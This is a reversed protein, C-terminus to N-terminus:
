RPNKTTCFPSPLTQLELLQRPPFLLLSLLSFPGYCNLLPSVYYSRLLQGFYIAFPYEGANPSQIVKAGRVIVGGGRRSYDGVSPLEWFLGKGPESQWYRVARTASQMQTKYFCFHASLGKQRTWIRCDRFGIEASYNTQRFRFTSRNTKAVM